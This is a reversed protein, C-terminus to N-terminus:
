ATHDLINGLLHVTIPKYKSKLCIGLGNIIIGHMCIYVTLNHISIEGRSQSISSFVRGARIEQM